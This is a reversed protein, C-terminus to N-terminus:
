KKNAQAGTRPSLARAKALPKDETCVCLGYLLERLVGAHM